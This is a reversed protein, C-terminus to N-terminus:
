PNPCYVKTEVRFMNEAIKLIHEKQLKHFVIIDDVRNLFEPKFATKLEELVIDKIKEYKGSRESEMTVYVIIYLLNCNHNYFFKM